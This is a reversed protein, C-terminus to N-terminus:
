KAPGFPSCKSYWDTTEKLAADFPTPKYDPFLKALKSGDLTRTLPGDPRSTDSKTEGKYELNAIVKEVCEGISVEDGVFNITNPDNYNRLAWYLLKACDKSYLFQRRPKGTGYLQLAEGNAACQLTRTILGEIVPGSARFNGFPGFINTPLVTVYNCGYQDRYARSLVDLMRKSFAYTEINTHPLGKHMADEDAVAPLELPYAFSSLCSVLKQVNFERCVKLINENMKNNYEWLEVKSAAMKHGDMILAALHIVHTPCHKKFIARTQDLNRLDGDSSGLFIWEEKENEQSDAFEKLARGVM